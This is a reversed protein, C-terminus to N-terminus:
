KRQYWSHTM